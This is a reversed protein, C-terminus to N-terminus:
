ATAEKLAKELTITASEKDFPINLRKLEKKIGLRHCALQQVTVFGREGAEIREDERNRM